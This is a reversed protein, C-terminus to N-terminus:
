LVLIKLLIRLKKAESLCNQFTIMNQQFNSM